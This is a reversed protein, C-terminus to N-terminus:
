SALGRAGHDMAQLNEPLPLIILVSPFELMKTAQFCQCHSTLLVHRHRSNNRIAAASSRLFGSPRGGLFRCCMAMEGISPVSMSPMNPVQLETARHKIAKGRRTPEMNMLPRSRMEVLPRRTNARETNPSGSLMNRNELTSYTSISCAPMPIPVPIGFALRDVM